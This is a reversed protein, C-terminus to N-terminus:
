HPGSLVRPVSFCRRKRPERLSSANPTAVSDARPGKIAVLRNGCRYCRPAVAMQDLQKKRCPKGNGGDTNECLCRDM